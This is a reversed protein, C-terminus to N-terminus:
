AGINTLKGLAPVKNKLNEALLYFGLFVGFAIVYKM